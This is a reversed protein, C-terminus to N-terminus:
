ADQQEYRSMTQELVSGIREKASDLAIGDAAALEVALLEEARKLLRHDGMSAHGQKKLWALDRVVQGIDLFGGDRLRATISGRRKRYDDPLKNPPGAFVEALRDREEGSVPKRLGLEEAKEVPTALIGKGRELEIIYYDTMVGDDTRKEISILTGIGYVPHLIHEGVKLDTM